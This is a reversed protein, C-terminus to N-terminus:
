RPGRRRPSSSRGRSGRRCVALEPEEDGQDEGFRAEARDERHQDRDAHEAALARDRDPDGRRGRQGQQHHREGERMSRFLVFSLRSFPCGREAVRAGGGASSASSCAKEKRCPPPKAAATRRIMNESCAKRLAPGSIMRPRWPAASAPKMKLTSISARAGSCSKWDTEVEIRGWRVLRWVESSGSLSRSNPWVTFITSSPITAKVARTTTTTRIAPGFHMCIAKPSLNM